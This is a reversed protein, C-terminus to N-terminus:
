LRVGLNISFIRYKNKDNNNSQTSGIKALGLGYNVGIMFRQVEVGAMFNVGYDFRRLKNVSADEQESTTPDDNNFQINKNYTSTVGAINQTGKVKGGIGMAVYPGAGAYFRSQNDVPFKLVFNAPLELYLPNFKVKYYNADRNPGFYSETKSGKGNLYLGTQFSFIDALPIDGVFGVNFSTLSNANNVSGDSTVSINSFNVGGKLYMGGPNSKFSSQANAIGCLCAISVLATTLKKM